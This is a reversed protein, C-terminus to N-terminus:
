CVAARLAKLNEVPTDNFFTCGPALIFGRGGAQQLADRAQRLVEEAPSTRAAYHDIGGMLCRSTRRRAEAISPGALRDEWSIADCPYASLLDFYTEKEGHIHLILAPARRLIELVARDSPEVMDRYQGESMWSAECGQPAFFFGDVVAERLCREAFRRYNAAITNLGYRVAEPERQWDELIRRGALRRAVHFPSYVTQIVPVEPDLQGRIRRLAELQRGFGGIEPDFEELLRWIKLESVYEYNVPLDYAEDYMVKLFDPEYARYFDLTFRTFREVTRERVTSHMWLCYPVRDTPEGRLTAALRQRSTV